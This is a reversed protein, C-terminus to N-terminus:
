LVLRLKVKIATYDNYYEFNGSVKIFSKLFCVTPCLDLRKEYECITSLTKHKLKNYSKCHSINYVNDTILAKNFFFFLDVTSFNM